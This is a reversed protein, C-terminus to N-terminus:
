PKRLTASLDRASASSRRTSRGPQLAAMRTPPTEYHCHREAATVSDLWQPRCSV